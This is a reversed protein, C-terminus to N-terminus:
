ILRYRIKVIVLLMDGIVKMGVIEIVSNFIQEEKGLENLWEDVEPKVRDINYFIKQKFYNQRM